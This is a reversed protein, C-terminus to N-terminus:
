YHKLSFAFFWNEFGKIKKLNDWNSLLINTLCNISVETQKRGAKINKLAM